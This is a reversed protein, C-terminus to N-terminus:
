RIVEEGTYRIVVATVDDAVMQGHRFVDLEKMIGDLIRQATKM